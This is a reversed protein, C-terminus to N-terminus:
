WPFYWIREHEEYAYIIMSLATLCHRTTQDNTLIVSVRKFFHLLLILRYFKFTRFRWLYRKFLDLLSWISSSNVNRIKKHPIRDLQHSRPPQTKTSKETQSGKSRNRFTQLISPSAHSPLALLLYPWQDHTMLSTGNSCKNCHILIYFARCSLSTIARM